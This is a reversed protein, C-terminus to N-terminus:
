DSPKDNHEESLPKVEVLKKGCKPCFNMSNEIPSDPNSMNWELGCDSSYDGCDSWESWAETSVNCKWGCVEQSHQKLIEISNDIGAVIGLTFQQVFMSNANRAKDMVVKREQELKEILTM